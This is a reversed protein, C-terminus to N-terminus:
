LHGPLLAHHDHVMDLVGQRYSLGWLDGVYTLLEAEPVLATVM